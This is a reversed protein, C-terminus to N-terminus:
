VEEHTQFWISFASKFLGYGAFLGQLLCLLYSHDNGTTDIHVYIEALIRYKLIFITQVHNNATDPPM